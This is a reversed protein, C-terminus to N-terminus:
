VIIFRRSQLIKVIPQFRFTTCENAQKSEREGGGWLHRLVRFSNGLCNSQSIGECTLFLHNPLHFSHPLISYLKLSDDEQSQCWAAAITFCKERWSKLSDLSAALNRTDRWGGWLGPAQRAQPLFGRSAQEPSCLCLGYRLSVMGM